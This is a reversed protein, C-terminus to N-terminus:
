WKYDGPLDYQTFDLSLIKGLDGQLRMRVSNNPLDNLVQSLTFYVDLATKMPEKRNELIELVMKKPLKVKEAIRKACGLGNGIKVGILKNLRNVGNEIGSELMGLNEKFDEISVNGKHEVTMRTMLPIECSKSKLNAYLHIGSMGADSTTVGIVLGYDNGDITKTEDLYYSANTGAYTWVGKFAKHPKRSINNLTSQFEEMIESTPIKVYDKSLFANVKGEVISIQVPKNPMYEVGLEFIEHFGKPSLHKVIDGGIGLRQMLSSMACQRIPMVDEDFLNLDRPLLFLKTGDKTNTDIQAMTKQINSQDILLSDLEKNCWDTNKEVERIREYFEEKKTFTLEVDDKYFKM